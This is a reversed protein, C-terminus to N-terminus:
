DENKELSGGESRCSMRSSFWIQGIFVAAQKGTPSSSSIELPLPTVLWRIEAKISDIRVALEGASQRVWPPTQTEDLTKARPM